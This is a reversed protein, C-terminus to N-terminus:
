LWGNRITTRYKLLLGCRRCMEFIKEIEASSPSGAWRYIDGMWLGTVPLLVRWDGIGTLNIFSTEGELVLVLSLLVGEM